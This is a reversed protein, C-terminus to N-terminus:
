LIINNTKLELKYLNDNDDNDDYNTDESDDSDDCYKTKYFYFHPFHKKVFKKAYPDDHKYTESSYNTIKGSYPFDEDIWYLIYDLEPYKQMVKELWKKPPSWATYFVLQAFNEQRTIDCIEYADWKTGWNDWRWNYWDKEKEKPMPVVIEFSFIEDENGIIKNITTIDGKIELKNTINNPM